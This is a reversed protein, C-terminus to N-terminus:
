IFMVNNTRWCLVFLDGNNLSDYTFVLRIIIIARFCSSKWRSVVLLYTYNQLLTRVQLWWLTLRWVSEYENLRIKDIRYFLADHSRLTFLCVLIVRLFINTMTMPLRLPICLIHNCVMFAFGKQMFYCLHISKFFSFVM